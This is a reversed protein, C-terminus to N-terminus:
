KTRLFSQFQSKVTETRRRSLSLREGSDLVVDAKEISFIHRFNVLFGTHIRIFGCGGFLKEYKNLSGRITLKQEKYYISILHDIIEFYVIENININVFGEYTEFDYSMNDNIIKKYLESFAEPLERELSNKRLFRFPTYKISQFVFDDRNTIFIIIIQKNDQRLMKAVDIGSIGPMEIDLFAIDFHETKCRDAFEGGTSFSQIENEVGKGSFFSSARECLYRNFIPEDDCIAIKVLM